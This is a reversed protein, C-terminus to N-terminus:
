RKLLQLALYYEATHSLWKPLGNKYGRRISMRNEKHLFGKLLKNVFLTLPAASKSFFLLWTIIVLFILRPATPEYIDKRM